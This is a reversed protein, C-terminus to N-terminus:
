AHGLAALLPGLEDRFSQWRGLSSRYLPRRV